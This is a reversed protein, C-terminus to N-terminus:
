QTQLNVGLARQQVCRDVLNAAKERIQGGPNDADTALISHPGWTRRVHELRFVACIDGHEVAMRVPKGADEVPVIFPEVM